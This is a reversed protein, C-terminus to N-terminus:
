LLFVFFVRLWLMRVLWMLYFVAFGGHRVAVITMAVQARISLNGPVQFQTVANVHSQAFISSAGVAIIAVLIQSLLLVLITSSGQLIVQVLMVM